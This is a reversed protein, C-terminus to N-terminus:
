TLCFGSSVLPATYALLVHFLMTWQPVLPVTIVRQVSGLPIVLDEKWATHALQAIPVSIKKGCAPPTLTLGLPVTRPHILALHVINEQLVSKKSSVSRVRSVSIARMADGQKRHREVLNM